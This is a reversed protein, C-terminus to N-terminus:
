SRRSLLKTPFEWSPLPVEPVQFAGTANRWHPKSQKENRDAFEKKDEVLVGPRSVPGRFTAAVKSAAMDRRRFFNEM